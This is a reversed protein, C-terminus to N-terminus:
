KVITSMFSVAYQAGIDILRIFGCLLASIIVVVLTQKATQRLTPWAIKKLETKLGKFFEGIKTFLNKKATTEAM